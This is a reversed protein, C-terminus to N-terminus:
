LGTMGDGSRPNWVQDLSKGTASYLFWDLGGGGFLQDIFTDKGVTANNLISPGNAGGALSGELHQMATFYSPGASATGWEAMLQLLVPLNADFITQDAILIDDGSTGAHLIDAGLGGILISNGSGATLNDNGAGGLIINNGSSGSADIVDNGAGGDIVASLTVNVGALLGTGKLLRITDNGAGSYVLIHGTPAFPGGPQLV